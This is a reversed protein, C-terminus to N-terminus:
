IGSHLFISFPFFSFGSRRLLLLTYIGLKCAPDIACCSKQQSSEREQQNTQENPKKNTGKRQKMLSQRNIKKARQSSDTKRQVLREIFNFTLLIKTRRRNRNYNVVFLINLDFSLSPYDIQVQKGCWWSEVFWVLWGIIVSM